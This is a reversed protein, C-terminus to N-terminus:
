KTKLVFFCLLGIVRHPMTSLFVIVCIFTQEFPTLNLASQNKKELTYKLMKIYVKFAILFIYIRLLVEPVKNENLLHLVYSHLFM